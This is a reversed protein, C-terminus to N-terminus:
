LRRIDNERETIQYKETASYNTKASGIRCVVRQLIKILIRGEEVAFIAM